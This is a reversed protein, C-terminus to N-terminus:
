TFEQTRPPTRDQVIVRHTSLYIIFTRPHHHTQPSHRRTLRAPSKKTKLTEACTIATVDHVLHSPYPLHANPYTYLPDLHLSLTSPTLALTADFRTLYRRAYSCSSLSSLSSPYSDSSASIEQGHHQGFPPQYGGRRRVTPLALHGRAGTSPPTCQVIAYITSCWIDAHTTLSKNHPM